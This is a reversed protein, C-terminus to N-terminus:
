VKRGISGSGEAWQLTAVFFAYERQVSYEIAARLAFLLVLVIFGLALPIGPTVETRISWALLLLTYIISQRFLGAMSYTRFVHVYGSPNHLRMYSTLRIDLEMLGFSSPRLFLKSNEGFVRNYLERLSEEDKKYWGDYTFDRLFRTRAFFWTLTLYVQTAVIGSVAALALFIIGAGIQVTPSNTQALKSVISWIDDRFDNNLAAGFIIFFCFNGANWFLDRALHHASYYFSQAKDSDAV